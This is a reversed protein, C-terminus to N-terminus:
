FPLVWLQVNGDHLGCALLKGNPSIAVSLVADDHLIKAMSKGTSVDWFRVTQDASASIVNKGDCSFTLCYVKDDHGKLTTKEKGTSMEWLKITNDAMAAALLKGDYSIAGFVIDSCTKLIFSDKNSELDWLRITCNSCISAAMSNKPSIVVSYVFGHNERTAIPEKLNSLDWLKVHGDNATTTMLKGDNSFAIGNGEFAAVKENTIVKWLEVTNQLTGAALLRSDQSFAMSWLKESKAKFTIREKQTAVEWIKIMGGWDGSALMRGDPSFAVCQVALRHGKLAPRGRPQQESCSYDSCGVIAAILLMLSHTRM